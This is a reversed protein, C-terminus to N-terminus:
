RYSGWTPARSGIARRANEGGAMSAREAGGRSDFIETPLTRALTLVTPPAVLGTPQANVRALDAVARLDRASAGDVPM